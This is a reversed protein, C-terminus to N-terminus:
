EDEGVLAICVRVIDGSSKEEGEITDREMLRALFVAPRAPTAAAAPQAAIGGRLHEGAKIEEDSWRTPKTIRNWCKTIRNLVNLSQKYTQVTYLKYKLM